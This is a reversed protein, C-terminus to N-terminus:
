LIGKIKSVTSDIHFGNHAQYKLTSRSNSYYSGDWSFSAHLTLQNGERYFLIFQLLILNFLDNVIAKNM